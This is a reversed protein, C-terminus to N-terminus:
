APVAPALGHELRVRHATLPGPGVGLGLIGVPVGARRYEVLCPVEGVRSLDGSLVEATDALAPAGYAQLRLGHQDSWFSPMPAFPVAPLPRGHEAAAITEAARKATQGPVCWHEVRRPAGGFLANPFRAVDGVALIREAGVAVMRDDCLVGDGLDLGADRLWEVNPLSGVAEVVVDAEIAISDSLIATVAADGELLSRVGVGLRLDVGNRRHFAAMAPAVRPGLAGVMPWVMPEVVTVACGLGLATAAFEMGIFGGGVVLVRVGPRMRAALRVADDFTRLVHRRDEGGECPLRRPRLGTAAVLWDYALTGGDSLVLQRETARVAEARTGLRWTVGTAPLRSKLVLKDFTAELADPAPGLLAQIAEKSLPPRNYPVHPEDGVITVAAEPLLALVAEATRLGALSAGVVVVRPPSAM